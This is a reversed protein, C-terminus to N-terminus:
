CRGVKFRGFSCSGTWVKPSRFRQRTDLRGQIAAPEAKAQVIAPKAVTAIPAEVKKEFQKRMDVVALGIFRPGRAVPRNRAAGTSRAAM